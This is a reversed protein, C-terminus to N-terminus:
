NSGDDAESGNPRTRWVSWATRLAVVILVLAFIRRLADGGVAGAVVAGLLGAGVAVPAMWVVVTYHITRNRQHQSVAVAATVVIVTLSVGQAEIQGEGLLIVMAPVFIVGGGLGLLGGAFGGALGIVIGAVIELM